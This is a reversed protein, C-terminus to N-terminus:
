EGAAEEAVGVKEIDSFTQRTHQEFHRFMAEGEVLGQTSAIFAPGDGEPPAFRRSEVLHEVKAIAMPKFAKKSRVEIKSVYAGPKNLTIYVELADKPFEDEDVQAVYVAQTEDEEVFEAAEIMEDLKDYLVPNGDMEAKRLKSLTKKAAKDLNDEAPSLVQWRAGEDLRPDYHLTVLAEKEGNSSWHEVTFAYLNGANAKAKEAAAILLPATEHELAPEAAAPGALFLAALAPALASLTPRSLVRVM